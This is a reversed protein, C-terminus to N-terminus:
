TVQFISQIIRKNCLLWDCFAKIAPLLQQQRLADLLLRMKDMDSDLNIRRRLRMMRRGHVVPDQVQTAGCEDAADSAASSTQTDSSSSSINSRSSRNSKTSNNCSHESDTQIEFSALKKSLEENAHAEDVAAEAVAADADLVFRYFDDSMALSSSQHQQQQSHSALAPAMTTEFLSFSTLLQSSFERFNITLSSTGASPTAIAAVGSSAAAPYFDSALNLTRPVELSIQKNNSNSDAHSPCEAVSASTDDLQTAATATTSQDAANNDTTRQSCSSSSSSSSSDSDTSSDGLTANLETESLNERDLYSIPAFRQHPPKAGRHGRRDDEDDDDDDDDEDSDSSSSSTDRTRRLTKKKKKNKTAKNDDGDEEEEEEESTDLDSNRDRRRLRYPPVQKREDKEKTKFSEKSEQQRQESHTAEDQRELPEQASEGAGDEATAQTSPPKSPAAKKALLVSQLRIIAHNLVHSFFLLSFAISIFYVHNHHAYNTSTTASASASAAGSPRVGRRVKLQEVSMLTIMALKFVLEDSLYHSAAVQKSGKEDDDEDEDDEQADATKKIKTYFMCTNFELLCQECLEQLRNTDCSESGAKNDTSTSSTLMLDVTYLFHCIFRKIHARQEDLTTHTRQQQQQQQQQQLQKDFRARNKAFLLTLNQRASAFPEACSLCYLYYYCADCGYNESAYLTGLQNLPMGNAPVLQLSKEYYKRALRTTTLSTPQQDFEIQYRALDGLCILLKHVIRSVTDKMLQQSVNHWRSSTATDKAKPQKNVITFFHHFQM